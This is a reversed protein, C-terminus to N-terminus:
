LTAALGTLGGDDPRAASPDLVRAAVAEARATPLGAFRALDLFKARIEDPSLATEPEGRPLDVGDVLCAGSRLAIEVAAARRAPAAATMAPDEIVEVRQTLALTLPDALVEPAFADMGVLGKHLAVATCWPISMKASHAGAIQVHDHLHVALRHTRVRIATVQDSDPAHAARLRLAAEVPAHCHRCSAYPKVYVTEVCLRGFGALPAIPLDASGGVLELWGQPGDLVDDPGRFGARALLAASLGAQAALGANFPKLESAGRIVKLIGSAATAGAALAANAGEPDLRLAAALGMAAGITGCVGTAHLGAQKARPQVTRALRVAAEYGAVIGRILDDDSLRAPGGLALLAAITPAGAHVMGFRDGDDLEAAHAAAGNILAATSPAAGRGLGILRAPGDTEGSLAALRAGRVPDSAAGALACGLWDLLRLRAAAVASDPLPRADLDRLGVLLTATAGATM